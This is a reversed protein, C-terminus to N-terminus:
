SSALGHKNFADAAVSAELDERRGRLRWHQYFGHIVNAQLDDSLKEDSVIRAVFLTHSGLKHVQEVEMERVRPASAPVPFQFTKSPTLPFPIQNWDIAPKTHHIAYQYAISCLHMPVNSLAVRGTREVLHAALRSDKLGFAFYGNGLEGMLNMPFINGGAEGVISVLSIPHPRIFTVMAAFQDPLTMKVDFSPSMRKNMRVQSLYHAWLRPKPLCYNRSGAVEFLILDSGQLPIVTKCRLHIEGLVQKGGERECYKLSIKRREIQEPRQGEPSVALILPACCATAMRRTVDIPAGLGHLWVAVENQPEKLGITFEQPILTDGFALKKIWKRSQGMVSM